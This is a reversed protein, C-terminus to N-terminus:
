FWYTVGITAFLSGWSEVETNLPQDNVDYRQQEYSYANETFTLDTRISFRDFSYGVGLEAGFNSDFRLKHAKIYAGNSYRATITGDHNTESIVHNYVLGFDIFFNYFSVLNYGLGVLIMDSEPEYIYTPIGNGWDIGDVKEERASTSVNQQKAYGVKATWSPFKQNLIYLDVRQQTLGKGTNSLSEGYVLGAGFTWEKAYSNVSGIMIMILIFVVRKKM